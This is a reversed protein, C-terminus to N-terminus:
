FLSVGAIVLVLSGKLFSSPCLPLLLSELSIFGGSDSISLAVSLFLKYVM